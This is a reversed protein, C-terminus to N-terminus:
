REPIPIVLVVTPGIEQVAITWCNYQDKTLYPELKFAARRLIMDMVWTIVDTPLTSRLGSFDIPEKTFERFMDGNIICQLEHVLSLCINDFWVEEETPHIYPKLQEMIYNADEVVDIVITDSVM